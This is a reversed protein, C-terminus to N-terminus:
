LRYRKEIAELIQEKNEPYVFVANNKLSSENVYYNQNPQKASTSTRKVELLIYQGNPLYVTADPFGQVYNPDNAVVETDPFRTRIENYLKRKFDSEKEM